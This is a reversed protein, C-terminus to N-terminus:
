PLGRETWHAFLAAVDAPTVRMCPHVSPFMLAASDPSHPVGLIHGLEHAAVGALGVTAPVAGTDITVTGADPDALGLMGPLAVGPRIQVRGDPQWEFLVAGGTAAEWMAAGSRIAADEEPTFGSAWATVTLRASCPTGQVAPSCLPARPPPTCGLLFAILPLLAWRLSFPM